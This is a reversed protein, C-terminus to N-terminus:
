PEPEGEEGYAIAELAALTKKVEPPAEPDYKLHKFDQYIDEARARLEPDIM